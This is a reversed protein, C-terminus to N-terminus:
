QVEVVRVADAIVYENAANTLEVVLTAGEAAHQGLSEWAAGADTFDNPAAEQNLTVPTQTSGNIVRFPANTARNPDAGWTTAVQYTKGPTVPITWRAVSAGGGAAAWRNGGAYGQTGQGWSGSLTSFEAHTENYVHAPLPTPPTPEGQAAWWTEALTRLTALDAQRARQLDTQEDPDSALDFLEEQGPARYLTPGAWSYIRNNDIDSQGTLRLWRIYRLAGQRAWFAFPTTQDHGQSFGYLVDPPTLLQGNLLPTLSRGTMSAPITAGCLDLATPALDHIEVPQAVVRHTLGPGWVIACSRNGVDYPSSKGPRGTTWGNDSVFVVYTSDLQGAQRLTGMLEALGDDLWTAMALYNKEAARYDTANGVFWTPVAPTFASYLDTFWVPPNHPLHPCHPAAWLAWPSQRRIFDSAGAQERRWYRMEVTNSGGVQDGIEDYHGAGEMWKGEVRVAYGANRLSSLLTNSPSLHSQVFSKIGHQHPTQGTLLCALSPRCISPCSVDTFVVGQAALADLNPTKVTADGTFGLRRADMDDGILLVLNPQQAAATSALAFFLILTRM